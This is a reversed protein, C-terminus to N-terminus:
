RPDELDPPDFTRARLVQPCARGFSRPHRRHEAGQLPSGANRPRLPQRRLGRLHCVRRAPLADRDQDPRRRLMRRLSWRQRQFQFAGAQLRSRAGGSTRSMLTRIPGFVNTYTAPNSRPTRGIPSQDISIVKDIHDLGRIERHAGPPESARYFNRALSRYLVDNVLSSKGSGSVGTVVVLKGLPIEIDLEKLNNHTAGCVELLLGNGERREEPVPVELEGRLYKGTLSRDAAAISDVRGEAVVEGGHEGAGPGLDLVWDAERITDEDHEVVLVTNGLDRMGKLTGLLRDNDRQHLGISPEDLVYLVGQLRSGVQTALRIRQSEGGSLTASSRELTLYGVGVGNLFSLRDEIERLVKRAIEREKSMLDLASFVGLLDAVPLGTLYDISHGGVTVALAEPRLRKGNCSDCISISMYKEIETRVGGSETERYRRELSPIVGEYAGRWKYSSRRGSLEFNMERGGTGYLITDRARQSLRHWPESLDFGMTKAVAYVMRMRWSRRTPPWPRIAGGNIPLAPDIVKDTDVAMHTGLGGCSDCAGFPSNFSFLRPTVESLGSGCEVCAYNQSVTEEPLGEPSLIALGKGVSLATEFSSALRAEIGEKVVVRDVIIEITHKKKKDLPPRTEDDLRVIEGDIRARQFGERAMQELQKKYEGKKGRVFPAILLLRTGEPFDLVRDVM